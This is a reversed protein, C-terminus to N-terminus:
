LTTTEGAVISEVRMGGLQSRVITHRVGGVFEFSHIMMM